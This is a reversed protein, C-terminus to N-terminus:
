RLGEVERALLLIREQIAPGLRAARSVAEEVSIVTTERVRNDAHAVIKEELTRPICDIPELGARRCEEATLGAGIHREVIRAVAESYGLERVMRAGIQGHALGHTRARGIDHLWAGTYVLDADVPVRRTYQMAVRAVTRCHEIVRPECGARELVAAFSSVATM